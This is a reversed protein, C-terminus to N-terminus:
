LSRSQQTRFWGGNMWSVGQLQLIKVMDNLNNLYENQVGIVPTLASSFFSDCVLVLTGSFDLTSARAAM